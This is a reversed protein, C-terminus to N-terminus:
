AKMNRNVPQYTRSRTQSSTEPKPRSESILARVPPPPLHHHCISLCYKLIPTERLYGKSEDNM